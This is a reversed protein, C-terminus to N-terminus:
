LPIEKGGQLCNESCVQLTERLRLARMRLTSAGVGLLHMLGKRNNIKDGKDGHYYQLILDRNELSLKELCQRVCDLRRDADGEFEWPATRPEPAEELPRAEKARDRNMERLLMRAVGIAYSGVDRIEASERVKKACRNLTEDAYEDPNACNRWEFFRVLNRRVELYREAAADRDAGFASLLADFAEQTLSWKQRAAQGMAIAM